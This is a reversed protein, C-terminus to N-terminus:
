SCLGQIAGLQPTAALFLDHRQDKYQMWIKSENLIAMVRQGHDLNLTMSKLAQVIEAKAAAPNDVLPLSDALLQLLYEILHVDVSQGVINSSNTKMLSCLSHAAEHVLDHRQKM